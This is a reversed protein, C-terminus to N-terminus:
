KETGPLLLRSFWHRIHRDQLRKLPHTVLAAHSAVAESAQSQRDQVLLAIVVIVDLQLKGVRRTIGHGSSVIMREVKFWPGIHHLIPGIEQFTGLPAALHQWNAARRCLFLANCRRRAPQAQVRCNGSCPKRSTKRKPSNQRACRVWDWSLRERGTWRWPAM